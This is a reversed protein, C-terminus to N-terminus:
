LWRGSALRIVHVVAKDLEIFSLCAMHPWGLRSPRPPSTQSFATWQLLSHCVVETNKGQSGLSCYSFAFLVSLSSSRLNTPAWYTVPSWHLFLKLFIFPHLWLLFLVWNQIPSTQFCSQINYLAINWLFRFHWTCSDLCIPLPWVPSPLLHVYINWITFM